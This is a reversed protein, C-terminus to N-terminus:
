GMWFSFSLLYVTLGYTLVALWRLFPWHPKAGAAVRHLYWLLLLGLPFTLFVPLIVRRPMGLVLVLALLFYASLLLTDIWHMARQWGLRVLPRPRAHHLDAAYAPFEFVLVM